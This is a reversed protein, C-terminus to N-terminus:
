SWKRLEIRMRQGDVSVQVQYVGEGQLPAESWRAVLTEAKIYERHKVIAQSL